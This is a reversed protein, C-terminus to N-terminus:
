TLTGAKSKRVFTNKVRRSLLMYSVWIVAVIGRGFAYTMAGQNDSMLTTELLLAFYGVLTGIFLARFLWHQAYMLGMTAAVVVFM